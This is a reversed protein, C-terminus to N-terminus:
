RALGKSISLRLHLVVEGLWVQVMHVTHMERVRTYASLERMTLVDGFM